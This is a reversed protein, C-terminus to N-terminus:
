AYLARCTEEECNVGPFRIVAVEPRVVKPRMM